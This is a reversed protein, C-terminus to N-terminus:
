VEAGIVGLGWGQALLDKLLGRQRRRLNCILRGCKGLFLRHWCLGLGSLFLLVGTGRRQLSETHVLRYYRLGCRLALM